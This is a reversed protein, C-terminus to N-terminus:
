KAKKKGYEEIILNRCVYQQDGNLWVDGCIGNTCKTAILNLDIFYGRFDTKLKVSTGTNSVQSCSPCSSSM